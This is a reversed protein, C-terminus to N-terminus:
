DRYVGTAFMFVVLAGIVVGIWMWGRRSPRVGQGYQAQIQYLADGAQVAALESYAVERLHGESFSRIVCRSKDVRVLPGVIVEGSSVTLTVSQGTQRSGELVDHLTFAPRSGIPADAGLTAGPLSLMLILAVANTSWRTTARMENPAFRHRNEAM